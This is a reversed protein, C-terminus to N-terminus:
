VRSFSIEIENVYHNIKNVDTKIDDEWRRGCRRLPSQRLPNGVLIGYANREQELGLQVETRDEMIYEYSGVKFYVFVRSM